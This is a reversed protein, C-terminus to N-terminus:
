SLSSKLLKKFKNLFPVDKLHKPLQNWIQVGTFKLSKQTIKKKCFFSRLDTSKRDSINRRFIHGFDGHFCSNLCKYVFLATFYTHLKKVTMIKRKKFLTDTHALFEARCIIRVIKKQSLQLKHLYTEFTSGWISICYTFYPKILYNYLMHLTEGYLFQRARLLIGIGKSVKNSIYNIHSKWSLKNDIVIGLFKTEDTIPITQGDISIDCETSNLRKGPSSMIMCSTKSVNLSLKNAKLWLTIKNLEENMVSAIEALSSGNIFLNTDDAYLIYSCKMSVNPLDNIYLLFLLPGLISGQPIGINVDSMDSKANNYNVYQKRNSLYDDIWDLSIGRIGYYPLKRLLIKHSITDFARSLDLFLGVLYENKEIADYFHETLSFLAMESSRGQRFGYQHKYLIDHNDLFSIIRKYALKEIIKSFAPLISIPRYNEFKQRDGKKWIPVIKAIKLADPVKGHSFSLNFIHTLPTLIEHKASKVLKMNIGDYGCSSNKLKSLIDIIENENTPMFFLSKETENKMHICPDMSIPTLKDYLLKPANQFYNNFHTAIDEDRTISTGNNNFTIKSGTRKKRNIVQNLTQWIKSLKNKNQNLINNYYRKEEQKLLNNLKNKIQKYEKMHVPDGHVKIHKYLKNKKKIKDKLEDTLWPKHNLQKPKIIKIPITKQFIDTFKDHFLSYALDVDNSQLVYSWDVTQLAQNFNQLTSENLILQQYTNNSSRTPTVDNQFLIHFISFHDSVDMPIIGTFHEETTHYNTFINDILTITDESVRTPRNILPIYSSSFMMDVFDSTPQHISTKLLNVNFDGLLYTLKNFSDLQKLLSNFEDNFTSINSGPPRYLCGIVINKGPQDIEIFISEYVANSVSLKHIVRYPITNKILISVGGGRKTTGNDTKTNRLNYEHNYHPFGDIDTNCENLWTESLAIIDFEHDITRLHNSLNNANKNASRINCHIMSIQVPKNHYDKSLKVNFDSSDYYKSELMSSPTNFYNLDPDNDGTILSTTDCIDSNMEFPNFIYRDSYLDDFLKDKNMALKIFLDQDTIQNYPFLNICRTCLWYCVEKDCMKRFDNKSVNMCQTHFINCCIDCTLKYRSKSSISHDCKSCNVM